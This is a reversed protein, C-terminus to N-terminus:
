YIINHLMLGHAPATVGARSRDLSKFTTTFNTITRRERGVEIITGMLNRIMHRLFGDGTFIFHTLSNEDHRLSADFITRVSGRGHIYKKDRSGSAEFSAFDHKGIIIQLCEKMLEFNLKSSIHVSYLRETPLQIPATSISYIYTKKRVSYRSHFDKEKEEASLIRISTPLMSNLANQYSLCGINKDTHFHAVMGRAHVGADTRGAGHLTVQSNNIRSLQKEIEEQITPANKQRQWGSFCTGDFAITLKINHLM